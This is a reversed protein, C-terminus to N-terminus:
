KTFTKILKSQASSVAEQLLEKSVLPNQFQGELTHKMSTYLLNSLAETANASDAHVRLSVSLKDIRSSFGSVGAQELRESISDLQDALALIEGKKNADM